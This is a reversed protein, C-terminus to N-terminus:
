LTFLTSDWFTEAVRYIHKIAYQAGLNSNFCLFHGQIALLVAPFTGNLGGSLELTWVRFGWTAVFFSLPVCSMFLRGLLSQKTMWCYSDRSQVGASNLFYSYRGNGSKYFQWFSYLSHAFDDLWPWGLSSSLLLKFYEYTCPVHM